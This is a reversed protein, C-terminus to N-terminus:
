PQEGEEVPIAIGAGAEPDALLEMAREIPIRVNWSQEDSWGYSTLIREEKDRLQEADLFESEQLRPEPIASLNDPFRPRERALASRAPQSRAREEAFGTVLGAMWVHVVVGIVVLGLGFWLIPRLDIDRTEHRVEPNSPTERETEPNM